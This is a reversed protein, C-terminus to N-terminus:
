DCISILGNIHKAAVPLSLHKLYYERPNYQDLNDLVHRVADWFDSRSTLVGTTPTIYRETWFRTDKLAVIPLGCALMEPIVRPCSDYEADAAVIGVRCKSINEAMHTRLVRVTDVNRPRKYRDPRNGLNLVSINKPVTSYVFEHGKCAQSANAPFCVDYTKPQPMPKFINDAAPKIFLQTRVNPWTQLCESVQGPSDQLILDYTIAPNRPVFRRGAGYYISYVRPYKAHVPAYWDFGGRYFIVDPKFQSKYPRFDAIWREVLNRALKVKRTKGLGLYWVEGRDKPGLMNYLLQTWMDDCSAIDDFMIERYDRDKPVKGRLM